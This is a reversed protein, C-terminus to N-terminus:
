LEIEQGTRGDLWVHRTRGNLIIEAVYVPYYIQRFSDVDAGEWLGKVVDRVQEEKIKLKSLKFGDSPNLENLRLLPQSVLEIKPIDLLRRYGKARGLKTSRVLRRDELGRLFRRTEESEKNAAGAIEILTLDKDPFLAKLIEVQDESLSLLKEVGSRTSLRDTVEALKGNMGDLLFYKTEFK